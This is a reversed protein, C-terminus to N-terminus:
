QGPRPPRRDRVFRILERLGAPTILASALDDSAPEDGTQPSPLDTWDWPVAVMGRGPLQVLAWPVQERWFVRRVQGSQGCDPSAEATITM